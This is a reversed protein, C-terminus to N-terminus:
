PSSKPCSGCSAKVKPFDQRYYEDFKPEDKVSDEGFISAFCTWFATENTCSGDNKVMAATGAWISKVLQQPDYGYPLMHKSLTRLYAEVFVDQDMPLLTGDLDFLINKIM